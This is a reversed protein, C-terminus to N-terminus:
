GIICLNFKLRLHIVEEGGGPPPRSFVGSDWSLTIRHSVWQFKKACKAERIYDCELALERSMVEILHEPFLGACSPLHQVLVISMCARGNRLLCFCSNDFFFHFEEVINGEPLVNSLSLATMINNVDSDISKAVGPYQLLLYLPTIKNLNASRHQVWPDNKKWKQGSDEDGGRQRGEAERFAGSRYVGSRVAEGWLVGAQRELQSWPRQQPSEPSVSRSCEWGQALFVPAPRQLEGYWCRDPRCSTRARVSASSSKPWSLTLSPTTQFFSFSAVRM